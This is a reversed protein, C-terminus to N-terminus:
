YRRSRNPGYWKQGKNFGNKIFYERPVELTRSYIDIREWETTKREKKKYQDSLSAKKHRRAIRQLEANLHSYKEKEGKSKM